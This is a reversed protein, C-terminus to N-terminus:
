NEKKLKTLENQIYTRLYEVSPDVISTVKESSFVKEGVESAAIMFITDRSPIAAAVFWCMFAITIPKWMSVWKDRVPQWIKEKEEKSLLYTETNEAKIVSTVFSIGTFVCTVAGLFILTGKINGIIDAIYLFLSLNNM